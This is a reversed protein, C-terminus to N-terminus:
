VWRPRGSPDRRNYRTTEGDDAVAYLIRRPSPVAKICEASTRRVSCGMGFGHRRKRRETVSKAILVGPLPLISQGAKGSLTVAGNFTPHVLFTVTIRM